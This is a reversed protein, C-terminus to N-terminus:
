DDYYGRCYATLRADDREKRERDLRALFRKGEYTLIAGLRTSPDRRRVCAPCECLMADHIESM